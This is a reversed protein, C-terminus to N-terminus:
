DGIHNSIELARSEGRRKRQNAQFNHYRVEAAIARVIYEEHSGLELNVNIAWTDAYIDARDDSKLGMRYELVVVDNITLRDLSMLSTGMDSMSRAHIDEGQFREIMSPRRQVRGIEQQMSNWRSIREDRLKQLLLSVLQQFKGSMTNIENHSAEQYPVINQDSSEKQHLSPIAPFILTSDDIDRHITTSVSELEPMDDNGDDNVDIERIYSQVLLSM